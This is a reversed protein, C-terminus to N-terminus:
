SFEKGISNTLPSRSPVTQGNAPNNSDTAEGATAEVTKPGRLGAVAKFM